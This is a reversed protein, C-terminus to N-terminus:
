LISRFNTYCTIWISYLYKEKNISNITIALFKLLVLSMDLRNEQKSQFFLLISQTEINCMTMIANYQLTKIYYINLIPIFNANLLNLLM